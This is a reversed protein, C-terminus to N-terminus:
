AVGTKAVVRAILLGAAIISGKWVLDSETQWVKICAAVFAALATM